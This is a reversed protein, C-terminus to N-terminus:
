DLIVVLVGLGDDVDCGVVAVEDRHRRDFFDLADLRDELTVDGLFIQDM